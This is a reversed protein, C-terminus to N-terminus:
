PLDHAIADMVKEMVNLTDVGVNAMIEKYIPTVIAFNSAINRITAEPLDPNTNLKTFTSRMLSEMDNMSAAWFDPYAAIFDNLLM